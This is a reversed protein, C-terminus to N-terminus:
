TAQKEDEEDKLVYTQRVIQITKESEEVQEKPKPTPKLKDTLKALAAIRERGDIKYEGPPGLSVDKGCGPCVIKHYKEKLSIIMERVPNFQEKQCIQEVTLKLGLKSRPM